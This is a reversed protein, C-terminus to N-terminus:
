IIYDGIRVCLAQPCDEALGLCLRPIVVATIMMIMHVAPIVVRVAPIVVQVAALVAPIVAAVAQIAVAAALMVEM